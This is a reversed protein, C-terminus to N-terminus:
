SDQCTCSKFTKEEEQGAIIDSMSYRLASTRESYKIEKPEESVLYNVSKSSVPDIASVEDALQVNSFKYVM